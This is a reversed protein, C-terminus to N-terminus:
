CLGKVKMFQQRINYVTIYISFYSSIKHSGTKLASEYTSSISIVCYLVILNQCLPMKFKSWMIQGAFKLRASLFIKKSNKVRLFESICYYFLILYFDLKANIRFIEGDRVLANVQRLRLYWSIHGIKDM